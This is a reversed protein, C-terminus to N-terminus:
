PKYVFQINYKAAKWLFDGVCFSRCGAVQTRSLTFVSKWSRQNRNKAFKNKTEAMAARGMCKTTTTTDAWHMKNQTKTKTNIELQISSSACFVSFWGCGCLVSFSVWGSGSVSYFFTWLWRSGKWFCTWFPWFTRFPYSYTSALHCASLM